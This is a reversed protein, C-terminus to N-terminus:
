AIFTYKFVIYGDSGNGGGPGLVGPSGGGGGSGYGGANGGITGSSGMGGPAQIFGGGAGGPGLLSSGAEGNQITGIGGSGATGLSGGPAGGGGGYAGGGGAGGNTNGGGLGGSGGLAQINFISTTGGNTGSTGGGLAGGAGGAGITYPIPTGSALMIDFETRYGSGGGGGSGSAIFPAGGGGGGGGGVMLINVLYNGSPSSPVNTTGAGATTIQQITIPVQAPPGTDGKIGTPGTYGIGTPGTSGTYGIGTPGTSGTYGIGTPGTSGTDGKTGTPGIPNNLYFTIQSGNDVVPYANTPSTFSYNGSGNIQNFVVALSGSVSNGGSIGTWYITRTGLAKLTNLFSLAGPTVGTSNFILDTITSFPPFPFTFQSYGAQSASPSVTLNIWNWIGFLSDGQPGTSGTPGSGGGGSSTRWYSGTPGIVDGTVRLTDVNLIDVKMEYGGTASVIKPSFVRKLLNSSFPDSNDVM